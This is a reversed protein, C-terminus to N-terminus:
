LGAVNRLTGSGATVVREGPALGELVEWEGGSRAGLRLPRASFAQPGTKVFALPAGDHEIVAGTPIV